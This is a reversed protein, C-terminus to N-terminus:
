VAGFLVFTHFQWTGVGDFLQFFGIAEFGGERTLFEIFVRNIHVDRVIVVQNGLDSEFVLLFQLFSFTM